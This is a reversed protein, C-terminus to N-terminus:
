RRRGFTRLIGRRGDEVAFLSSEVQREAAFGGNSRGYIFRRVREYNVARGRRFNSEFWSRRPCRGFGFGDLMDNALQPRLLFDLDRGVVARSMEEGVGVGDGARRSSAALSERCVRKRRRRRRRDVGRFARL